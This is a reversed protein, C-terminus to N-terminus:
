QLKQQKKARRALVMEKIQEQQQHWQRYQHRKWLIERTIHKIIMWAKKFINARNWEFNPDIFNQPFIYKEFEKANEAILEKRQERHELAVEFAAIYDKHHQGTRINFQTRGEDIRFLDAVECRIKQHIYTCLRLFALFRRGYRMYIGDYKFYYQWGDKESYEKKTYVLIQDVEHREITEPWKFKQLEQTYYDIQQSEFYVDLVAKNIVFTTGEPIM